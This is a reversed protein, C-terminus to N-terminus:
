VDTWSVPRWNVGDWVRLVIPSVYGQAATLTATGDSVTDGTGDLATLSSLSGDGDVVTGSTGTLATAASLLGDGDSVSDASGDLPTAVVLSGDGGTVSDSTGDLDTGPPAGMAMVMVVGSGGHGGRTATGGAGGGGGGTNPLADGGNDSDGTASNGGGGVGGDSAWLGGGGGGVWGGEGLGFAELIADYIGVGGDGGFEAPPRSEGVAGAGGGGAAATRNTGSSTGNGGDHGQGATGAGGVGPTGSGGFSDGGSGGGGSGGPLGDQLGTIRAGGGGGGTGSEAGFSSATGSIGRNGNGTTGGDGGLGVTVAVDGSVPVGEVLQVGGAGGGGGGARAGGGGGDVLWVDVASPSGAAEWDWTGSERFIQINAVASLNGDGDSATDAGGYLEGSDPTLTLHFAAKAGGGSNALTFPATAGQDADASAHQGGASSANSQHITFEAPPVFPQTLSNGGACIVRRTGDELVDLAPFAGGGTGTWTASSFLVPALADRYAGTMLHITNTTAGSITFPYSAPPSAPAFRWFVVLRVHSTTTGNAVEGLRNWGSPTPISANGRSTFGVVLLDGEVTGAPVNAVGSTNFVWTFTSGVHTVAM